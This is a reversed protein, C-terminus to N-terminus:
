ESPCLIGTPGPTAGARPDPTYGPSFHPRARRELQELLEQLMAADDQAQLQARIEPEARKFSRGELLRANAEYCRRLRAESAKAKLRLRLKLFREVQLEAKLSALLEPPAPEGPLAAAYGSGRVFAEFDGPTEFRAKLREVAAQLEEPSPDRLKLRHIEQLLLLRDVMARLVPRLFAEGIVSRAALKPGRARVLALQAEALLESYTIVSSGVEAVVEDVLQPPASLLAAACAIAIMSM